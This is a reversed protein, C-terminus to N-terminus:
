RASKGFFSPPAECLRAVMCPCLSIELTREPPLEDRCYLEPNLTGGVNELLEFLAACTGDIM